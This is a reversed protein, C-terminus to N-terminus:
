RPTRLEARGNATLAGTREGSTDRIRARRGPAEQNRREARKRRPSERALPAQSAERALEDFDDFQEFLAVFADQAATGYLLEHQLPDAEDPGPRECRSRAFVTSHTIAYTLTSM